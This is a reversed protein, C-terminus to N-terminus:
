KEKKFAEKASAALNKCQSEVYLLGRIKKTKLISKEINHQDFESIDFLENFVKKMKKIEEPEYEGMLIKATLTGRIDKDMDDPCASDFCHMCDFGIWFGKLEGSKNKQGYTLGGHISVDIDFYSKEYWPHDNPIKVYGCRFGLPNRLVKFEFGAHSGSSELHM